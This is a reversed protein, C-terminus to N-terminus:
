SNIEFEYEFQSLEKQKETLMRELVNLAMRKEDSAGEQFAILIHELKEIDTVLDISMDKGV